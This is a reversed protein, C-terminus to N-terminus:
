VGETEVSFREESPHWVCGAPITPLVALIGALATLSVSAKGPKNYPVEKGYRALAKALEAEDTVEVRGSTHRTKITGYQLRRSKRDPDHELLARGWREIQRELEEMLRADYQDLDAHREIIAKIEADRIAKNQKRQRELTAYRRMLPTIGRVLADEDDHPPPAGFAHDPFSREMEAVVDDNGIHWEGATHLDDSM